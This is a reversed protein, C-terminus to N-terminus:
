SVTKSIWSDYLVSASLTGDHVTKLYRSNEELLERRLEVDKALATIVAELTEGQAEVIPCVMGVAEAILARMRDNIHAIPICGAAIAEISTAGYMGMTLQDVLIDAQGLVTPMDQRPVSQISMHEVIGQADLRELVPMIQATGKLWSRSPIHAVKLLDNDRSIAQMSRAGAATWEQSDVVLPCWLAEPLDELLDPTSVFTPLQLRKILERNCDSRRQLVQRERSKERFPSTQNRQAHARPNRTDSGHSLLAVSVGESRLAHVEKEVDFDFLCGFLPEEAEILVHTYRCVDEFYEKAWKKSLTFAGYPVNLDARFPFAGPFDVMVNQASVNPCERELARAWHWAQEAFNVPAILIRVENNPVSLPAPLPYPKYGQARRILPYILSGPGAIKMASEIVPAPLSFILDHLANIARACLALNM